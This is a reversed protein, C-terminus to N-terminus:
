DKETEFPWNSIGGGIDYINTYGMAILKNAANNSRVGSRCYVLILANKDPLVTAAKDDIENLPLSIAHPIRIEKFETPTRVDVLIANPTEDLMKKAEEASLKHYEAKKTEQSKNQGCGAFAVPLCVAFLFWKKM